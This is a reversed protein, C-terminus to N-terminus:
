GVAKKACQHKDPFFADTHKAQLFDAMARSIRYVTGVQETGCEPCVGVSKPLVSMRPEEPKGWEREVLHIPPECFPCRGSKNQYARGCKPCKM